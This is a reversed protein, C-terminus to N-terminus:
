IYKKYKKLGYKNKFQQRLEGVSKNKDLIEKYNDDTFETIYFKLKRYVKMKYAKRLAEKGKESQFYEKVKAKGKISKRYLESAKAEGGNEKYLQRVEKGRDSEQYKRVKERLDLPTKYM